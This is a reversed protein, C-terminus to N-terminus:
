QAEYVKVAGAEFAIRWGGEDALWDMVVSREGALAAERPGALIYTVRNERLFQDRTPGDLAGTWFAEVQAERQEANVTEFPHGYLVPQGAWAPTFTGMMPSCLVVAEPRGEDRLWRLVDWEGDSLYFWSESAM